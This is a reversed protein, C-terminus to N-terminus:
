EPGGNRNVGSGELTRELRVTTGEPTPQVEVTDMLARMLSLGRGHDGERPPRWVGSDTITIWLRRGEAQGALAFEGGGGAHEIVNTAAEGCATVMEAIESDAAGVHRLWRRLLSRMSALAEPEAAFEFRFRDQMPISRLTLLAVDDPAGERPVMEHLLYDCLQEPDSPADAVAGALTNMGADIHKGPREVLGDTYLVVSAGPKMRASVEEFDPFPLVGLPVSSGGELFSPSGNDGVLLPPLHGANVWRVEGESPDVVVYLLTAMQSEDAETWILRNLQELVRAPAHGELAYARLASRLRGVMSAAALGKGAVDGMVLGVGGGPVPLVDYWDGGVGEEAAAPKYRAAVLLGPAQPIRDPLLSRQLTVALAHEREYVLAHDIALAVRDAALRLLTVDDAVFRRPPAACVVLVGTVQGEALLPVGIMSNVDLDRLGLRRVDEDDPNHTLAPQRSEAVDGAFGEGFGLPDSEDADPVGASVARLVLREEEVLYIVGADANLVGPVRTIVDSLIENLRRRYLAADVLLQMGSIMETVREAEERAAQERALADREEQRRQRDTVDRIFGAILIEGRVDVKSVTAEAPFRSGDRRAFEVEYSQTAVPGPSDALEARRRDHRERFEEPIALARLPRGVAEAASWGFLREAAANWTRIIGDRDLTVFADPASDLVLRTRAESRRLAQARDQAAQREARLRSLMRSILLGAILPTGVALLWRIAPSSPDQIALVVAYSVGIFAVHALALTLGFFYFAYLATWTYLLPYLTSTGTYYNAFSLITTGAALVLHLQWDAIRDAQVYVLLAIALAIGALVYLQLDRVGEEHPLLLTLIGLLAGAAFLYALSRAKVRLDFLEPLPAAVARTGRRPGVPAGAGRPV